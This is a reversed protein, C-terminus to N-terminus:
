DRDNPIDFNIVFRIDVIDIGRGTVDTSIMIRYVGSRFDEM